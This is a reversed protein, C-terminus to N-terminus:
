KCKIATRDPPLPALEWTGNKMLSSYEEKIAAEWLHADPSSLAQKYTLDQKGYVKATSCTDEDAAALVNAQYGQRIRIRASRRIQVANPTPDFGYFPGNIQEDQHQVAEGQAPTTAEGQAPTTAEGQLQNTPLAAEEEQHVPQEAPPAENQDEPDIETGTQLQDEDTPLISYYGQEETPTQSWNLEFMSQEEFVVDRSTTLKRTTPDWIQSPITQNTNFNRMSFTNWTTCVQYCSTSGEVYGVMMAVVSKPDLKRRKEDPVHVHVLCGFVKLHHIDPIKKFWLEFPTVKSASPTARNQVYAACQMAFGWLELPVKRGYMQSRASEVLTRNAREAVGNLKPTYPPTFQQAIGAKALWNKFETGTYEGGGDSRM